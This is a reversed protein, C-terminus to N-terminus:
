QKADYDQSLPSFSDRGSRADLVQPRNGLTNERRGPLSISLVIGASAVHVSGTQRCVTRPCPVEQQTGAVWTPMFIVAILSTAEETVFATM